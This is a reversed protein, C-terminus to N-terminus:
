RAKELVANVTLESGPEVTLERKWQTFGAMSVMVVHTGTTLGLVSPTSGVYRGDVMVEAGAPTSSFSCKVTEPPRSTTVSATPVQGSSQVPVQGANQAPAASPAQAPKEAPVAGAAGSSAPAAVTTGAAAPAAAKGKTDGAVLTYLQNRLNGKEDLYYVVVGKKERRAEFSAGKPLPICRSYKSEATCSIRFPPDNGQQVLLTNMLQATRGSRCYADFTLQECNNPVGNDNLGLSRTESDLVKLQITNNRSAANAFMAVLLVGALMAAIRSMSM